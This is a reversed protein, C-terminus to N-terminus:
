TRLLVRGAQGFVRRVAFRGDVPDVVFELCALDSGVRRRDQKHM